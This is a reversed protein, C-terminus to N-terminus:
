SKLYGKRGISIYEFNSENMDKPSFLNRGDFLLARKMLQKMRTFDAEFFENWETMILLAEAGELAAYKDKAFRIRDSQPYFQKVNAIAQPDYAVIDAGLELLETITKLSSAERIDDTDPKFSLGWVALKKGDLDSGLAQKVKDVLIRQQRSNADIVAEVIQFNYNNQHAIHRLALVDKPFCSGGFGAGAQLFRHGIREDSGIGLSVNDVNAGVAECINAIENIFAIKTALYANAAYKTMESSRRDMVYLKSGKSILPKYLTRMIKEAKADETGVIIRDPNMFDHVAIGERLFEPNSVVAFDTDIGAEKIAKVVRDGTGIPVTSKNVIVAYHDLLEGLDNAVKLVYQLDASGDEGPPTPLALFIAEADAIASQLRTTFQLNGNKINKTFLEELGPEYIPIKGAKMAAVKQRDIDVCTVLNGMEAFCTGSVLGVYGTGIIAIKM